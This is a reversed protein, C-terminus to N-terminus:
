YEVVRHFLRRKSIALLLMVYRICVFNLTFMLFVAVASCELFVSIRRISHLPSALRVKRWNIYLNHSWYEKLQSSRKQM